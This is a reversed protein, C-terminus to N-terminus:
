QSGAEEEDSGYAKVRVLVGLRPHDLYHLESDGIRIAQHITDMDVVQWQGMGAVSTAVAASDTETAQGALTEALFAPLQPAPAEPIPPLTPWQWDGQDEGTDSGLGNSRDFRPVWLNAEFHLFRSRYVRLSGELQYHGNALDGGNVVVWPARRPSAMQQLWSQHLLVRYDGHRDLTYAEPGLLHRSDPLPQYPTIDDVPRYRLQQEPVLLRYLQQDVPSLQWYGAPDGSRRGGLFVRNAPYSLHRPPLNQEQRYNDSQTFVIVEVQYWDSPSSQAATNLSLALGLALAFLRTM